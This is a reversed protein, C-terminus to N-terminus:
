DTFVLSYMSPYIKLVTLQRVHKMVKVDLSM